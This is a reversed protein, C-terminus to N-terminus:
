RRKPDPDLHVKNQTELYKVPIKKGSALFKQLQRWQKFSSKLFTYPPSNEGDGIGKIVVDFEFWGLKEFIKDFERTVRRKSYDHLEEWTQWRRNFEKNPYTSVERPYYRQRGYRNPDSTHAKRGYRKVSFFRQLFHFFQAPSSYPHDPKTPEHGWAKNNRVRSAVQWLLTYAADIEPKLETWKNKYMDLERSFDEDKPDIGIHEKLRRTNEDRQAAFDDGPFAGYLGPNEELLDELWEPIKDDKKLVLLWNM